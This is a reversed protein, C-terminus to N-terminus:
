VQGTEPLCMPPKLACGNSVVEHRSNKKREEWHSSFEAAYKAIWEMCIDNMSRDLLPDYGLKEGLYWKFKSIEEVEARVYELLENEQRGRAGNPTQLRDM